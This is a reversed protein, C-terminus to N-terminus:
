GPPIKHDKNKVAAIQVEWGDFDVGYRKAIIQMDVCLRDMETHIPILLREAICLFRGSPVSYECCQINYGNYLLHDALRYIDFESKSYFWFTVPREKDPQLDMKHLFRLISRNAKRIAKDM